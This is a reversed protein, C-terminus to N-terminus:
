LDLEVQRKRPEENWNIVDLHGQTLSLKATAGTAMKADRAPIGLSKAVLRFIGNSSVVVVLANAPNDREITGILCAWSRIIDEETPSWGFGNPWISDRQWGDIASDGVESRIEDNSRGEWSGYDIERLASTVIIADMSLALREAIISATQVTRKLPGTYIRSPAPLGQHLLAAVAEAQHIGTDVLPLDTRAGVWVVKDTPAFTNGHRVLILHM